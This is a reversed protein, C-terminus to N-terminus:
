VIENWKNLIWKLIIKKYVDLRATDRDEALHVWDVNKWGVEKRGV